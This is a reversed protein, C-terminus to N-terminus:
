SAAARVTQARGDGSRGSSALTKGIGVVADDSDARRNGVLTEGGWPRPRHRLSEEIGVLPPGSGRQGVGFVVRGTGVPQYWSRAQPRTGVWVGTVFGAFGRNTADCGRATAAIQNIGVLRVTGTPISPHKATQIVLFWWDM